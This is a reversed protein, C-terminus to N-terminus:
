INVITIEETAIIIDLDAWEEIGKTKANDEPGDIFNEEKGNETISAPLM